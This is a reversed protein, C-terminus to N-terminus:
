LTVGVLFRPDFRVASTPNGDPESSLGPTYMDVAVGATAKFGFLSLGLEARFQPLLNGPGSLYWDEAGRHLSYVSADIDVFLSGIPIHGGVGLGYRWQLNDAGADLGARDIGASIMTYTYRSGMKFDLYMMSQSDIWFELEQRGAQEFTLLGVAVGDVVRAFNLLGVQTGKVSGAINILGIQAGTVTDAVNVLSIQPGTMERAYNGISSIQVGSATESAWNFLGAVQAGGMDAFSLNVLGAVQAGTLSGACNFLGAGQFGIFSGGVYNFIGATQLFSADKGAFNALGATQFGGVGGLVVNALGGGQFGYLSGSEINVLTGLEMGNVNGSAGVLLNISITKSERAGFLGDILAPIFSVAFDTIPALDEDLNESLNEAPANGRSVTKDTSMSKLDAQSLSARRNASIRVDARLRGERADVVVNYLGPALGLEVSQGVAKNLEVALFGREDRIYMRGAVDEAVSLGASAARLDTLVFDGSGALSMEFGPHQPGYQTKETSALTEQFAFAYAENLTVLGDGTVDAAGRLGSVLYHTFFSAGIRDSEQASEDGSSSTLFAHGKMESSADFLFAPRAVGGKTRTLAGSACSDLIAVRVDAPVETIGSRLEEYPFTETGLILGNEDSHGSYYLLFERREGGSRSDEMMKRIKRMGAQLSALSPDVLLLLDEERVGGLEILVSSFTKADSSAYRLRTRTPGGGNSGAVLAFRRLPVVAPPASEAFLAGAFTLILGIAAPIVNRTRRM